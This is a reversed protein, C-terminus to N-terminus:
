FYNIKNFKNNNFIEIFISVGSFVTGLFGDCESAFIVDSMIDLLITEKEQNYIPDLSSSSNIIDHSVRKINQFFIIDDNFKNKLYNVINEDESCLFIKEYGGIICEENIKNFYYEFNNVDFKIYPLFYNECLIDSRRIHVSLTKKNNKIKRLYNLKLELKNNIKFRSWFLNNFEQINQAESSPNTTFYKKVNESWLNVPSSIVEDFKEPFNQNFIYDLANEDGVTFRNDGWYLYVNNDIDYLYTCVNSFMCFFGCRQSHGFLKYLKNKKM